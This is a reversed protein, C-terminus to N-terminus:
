GVFAGRGPAHSSFHNLEWNLSARSHRCPFKVKERTKRTRTATRNRVSPGRGPLTSPRRQATRVVPRWAADKPRGGHAAAFDRMQKWRPLRSQNTATQDVWGCPMSNRGHPVRTSQIAADVADTRTRSLGSGGARTAGWGPGDKTQRGTTQRVKSSPM